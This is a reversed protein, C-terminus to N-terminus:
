ETEKGKKNTGRQESPEAAGGFDLSVRNFTICAPLSEYRLPVKAYVNEYIHVQVSTAWSGESRLQGVASFSENKGDRFSANRGYFSHVVQRSQKSLTVTLEGYMASLFDHQETGFCQLPDIKNYVLLVTPWGNSCAAKVQNRAENIKARVHDGVTRSSLVGSFAQDHVIEKVEFYVDATDITVRYDPTPEASERVRQWALSNAACFKEFLAESLTKRPM